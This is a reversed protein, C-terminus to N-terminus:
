ASAPSHNKIARTRATRNRVMCGQRQSSGSDNATKPTESRTSARVPAHHSGHHNNTM